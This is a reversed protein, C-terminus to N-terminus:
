VLGLLIRLASDVKKLVVPSVTGIAGTILAVDVSAIKDVRVASAARLGTQKTVPVPVRWARAGTSRSTIFLVVVHDNSSGVVLAPRRKEGSLDTFPFVVLVIDGREPM